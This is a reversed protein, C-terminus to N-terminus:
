TIRELIENAAVMHVQRMSSLLYDMDDVSLYTRLGGLEVFGLARLNLASLFVKLGDSRTATMSFREQDVLVAWDAPHKKMLGCVCSTLESPQPIVKNRKLFM